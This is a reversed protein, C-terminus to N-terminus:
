RYGNEQATQLCENQVSSAVMAGIIGFGTTHCRVRQGSSNMLDQNYSACGSMISMSLLAVSITALKVVRNKSM